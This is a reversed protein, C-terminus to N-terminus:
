ENIEQSNNMFQTFLNSLQPNSELVKNLISPDIDKITNLGNKIKDGLDNLLVSLFGTISSNYEKIESLTQMLKVQLFELEKEDINELILTILGSNSLTDYLEEVKAKNEADFIINTYMYVLHLYFYMKLKIPNYIGEEYSKKITAMILDYKDAISLYPIIQIESGNFNIIKNEKNITKNFDIDKYNILGM